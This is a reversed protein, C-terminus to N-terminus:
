SIFISIPPLFFLHRTMRRGRERERERRRRRTKDQVRIEKRGIKKKVEILIFSSTSNAHTTEAAAARLPIFSHTVRPPLPQSSRLDRKKECMVM